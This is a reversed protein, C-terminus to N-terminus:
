LYKIKNWGDISFMDGHWMKEPNYEPYYVTSYLALYGILASYSGGSLVIHKCTSAFQITRIHDQTIFQASPWKKRIDQVIAHAPEDTAIYLKDFHIKSLANIYYAAGPNVSAADTLRIHVAADNNVNYRDRFTNKNVILAPDERLTKYIKQCIDNTQFFSKNADVNANFTEANLIDFFNDDTLPATTGYKHQGCYLRIGIDAIQKASSYQVFLNHKEAIYSVAMNRIVQNAFRGYDLTTSSM